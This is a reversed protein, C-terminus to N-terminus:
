TASAKHKAMLKTIATVQALQRDVWSRVVPINRGKEDALWRNNKIVDVLKPQERGEAVLEAAYLAMLWLEKQEGSWFVDSCADVAADIIERQIKDDNLFAVRIGNMGDELISEPVQIFFGKQPDMLPAVQSALEIDGVGVEPSFTKYLIHKPLHQQMFLWEDPVSKSKSIATRLIQIGSNFHVNVFGQQMLEEELGIVESPPLIGGEIGESGEPGGVLGALVLVQEPTQHLWAFPISADREPMQMYLKM